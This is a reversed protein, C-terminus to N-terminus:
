VFKKLKLKVFYPYVLFIIAQLFFFIEAIWQWQDCKENWNYVSFIIVIYPLFMLLILFNSINARLYKKVVSLFVIDDVFHFRMNSPITFVEAQFSIRPIKIRSQDVDNSQRSISSDSNSSSSPNQWVVRPVRIQSIRKMDQSSSSTRSTQLAPLPKDVRLTLEEPYVSNSNLNRRSPLSSPNNTINHTAPATSSLRYEIYAIYGICTISIFFSTLLLITAIIYYYHVSSFYECLDLFLLVSNEPEVLVIVIVILKIFVIAIIATTNTIYEHYYVELYVFLLGDLDQAAVNLIFCFFSCYATYHFFTQGNKFFEYGHHQFWSLSLIEFVVFGFTVFVFDLLSNLTLIHVPMLDYQHKKYLIILFTFYYLFLIFDLIIWASLLTDEEIEKEELAFDTINNEFNSFSFKTTAKMEFDKRLSLRNVHNEKNYIQIARSECLYLGSCLSWDNKDLNTLSM